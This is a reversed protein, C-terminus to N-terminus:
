LVFGVLAYVVFSPILCFVFVNTNFECYFCITSFVLSFLLFFRCWFIISYSIDVSYSLINSSISICLWSLSMAFFKWKRSEDLDFM